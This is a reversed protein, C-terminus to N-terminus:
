GGRRELARRLYRAVAQGVRPWAGARDQRFLRVTPYWPTDARGLFWRWDPAHPLLLWAPRGLAGALHLPATDVTVLLDLGALLAATGAFDAVADMPDELRAAWRPPLATRAPGTQLSFLRVGAVDLLPDLAGLPLSRNRDNRHGPNGAWVLGVRLRGSGDDLRATWAAAEAPDASLYPVPAPIDAVRRTAFARPLSMLPCHADFPPPTDGRPVIALAGAPVPLTRLLRILHPHVELVVRAGHRAALAVADPVYRVFQITDGFGQEAHLLLTGGAPLPQDATWPPAPIRKWRQEFGTWGAALDGQVLRSLALAMHAERDTGDAAALAAFCAEAGPFMQRDRLVLGLDLLSDRHGPRLRHARWLWRTAAELDHGAHCALGLNVAADPQDPELALARLLAAAAGADDGAALRVGGLHAWVAPAAPEVRLARALWAAAPGSQGGQAALTGLLHLATAADPALALARRYLRGARDGDGAMHATVAANLLDSLTAM